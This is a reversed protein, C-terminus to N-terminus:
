FIVSFFDFPEDRVKIGLRFAVFKLDQEIEVVFLPVGQSRRKSQMVLREGDKYATTSCFFPESSARVREFIDEIKLRDNELFLSLEDPQESRVAFSSRKM